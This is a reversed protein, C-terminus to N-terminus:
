EFAIARVAAGLVRPDDSLGLSAPSAAATLRVELLNVGDHWAAVSLDMSQTQWGGAVDFEGIPGDNLLWSVRQRPQVPGFPMLTVTLNTPAPQRAPIALRARHGDVWRFPVGDPDREAAHWGDILWPEAREDLVIRGAREIWLPSALAATEDVTARSTLYTARDPHFWVRIAEVPHSWVLPLRSAWRRIGEDGHHGGAVVWALPEGELRKTADPVAEQANELRVSAGARPLYYGLCIATWDNTALVLDGPRAREAVIGAIHRWDARGTLSRTIADREVVWVSAAVVGAAVLSVSASRGSTRALARAPLAAAAGLGAAVLLLTPVLAPLVYRANIWHGRSELAVVPALYGALAAAALGAALVGHRRAMVVAGLAALGLTAPALWPVVPVGQESHAGILAGVLAALLQREPLLRGSATGELMGGYLTVFLVGVLCALGMALFTAVGIRRIPAQRPAAALAAVLFFLLLAVAHFVGNASTLLLLATSVAVVAIDRPERRGTALRAAALLGVASWLVLLAYPRAERSYYLHIPSFAVLAAAIVGTAPGALRHAALAVLPLTALGALAFPVRFASESAGLWHGFRIVAYYLPGHEPGVFGVGLIEDLWLGTADLHSLRLWAGACVILGVALWALRAPGDAQGVTM